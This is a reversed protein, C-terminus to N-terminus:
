PAGEARAKMGELMQITTAQRRSRRIPPPILVHPQTYSHYELWCGAGDVIVRYAGDAQPIDSMRSPDLGFSCFQKEIDCEYIVHFFVTKIVADLKWRAAPNGGITYLEVDVLGDIEEVRPPLDMVAEMVAEPSAHVYVAATLVIGEQDSQFVVVDGAEARVRDSDALAVREPEQPAALALSPGGLVTFLLFFRLV